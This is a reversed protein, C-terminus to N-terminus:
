VMSANVREGLWPCILPWVALALGLVWRVITTKPVGCWRGLVALPVKGSGLPRRCTLWGLSGPVGAGSVLGPDPASPQAYGPAVPHVVPRDAGALAPRGSRRQALTSCARPSAPHDYAGHRSAEQPHPHHREGWKVWLCPEELRDKKRRQRLATGRSRDARLSPPAVAHAWKAFLEREPVLRVGIM